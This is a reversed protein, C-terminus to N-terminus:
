LYLRRQVSSADVRAKCKIQRIPFESLLRNLNMNSLIGLIMTFFFTTTCTNFLLAMTIVPKQWLLSCGASSKTQYRVWNSLWSMVAKNLLQYASPYGLHVFFFLFRLWPHSFVALVTPSKLIGMDGPSAAADGGGQVRGLTLQWVKESGTWSPM